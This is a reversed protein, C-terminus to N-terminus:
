GTTEVTTVLSFDRIELGVDVQIRTSRTAASLVFDCCGRGIVQRTLCALDRSLERTEAPLPLGETRKPDVAVALRYTGRFTCSRTADFARRPQHYSTM